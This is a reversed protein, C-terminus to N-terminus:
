GVLSRQLSIDLIRGETPLGSWDGFRDYYLGWSEDDEQVAVFADKEELTLREENETWGWSGIIQGQAASRNGFKLELTKRDIFIWNLMPPSNSITSVLGELKEESPYQFYYGSFPHGSPSKSDEAANDL